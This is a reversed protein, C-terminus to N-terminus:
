PQPFTSPLDAASKLPRGPQRQWYGPSGPKFYTKTRGASNYAAFAGIQPDFIRLTGDTDDLKMPLNEARARQLFLWAQAAYDAPSKSNFDRGHRDFHDQLSNVNGWTQVTPPVKPAATAAAKKDPTLANILRGVIGPQPTATAAPAPADDLTTFTGTALRARASGLSYHYTTGPNLGELRVQHDSSVAGEAKQTLQAANPGYQLRTGCEVDTKWTVIAGTAAPTIKPQGVLEVAHALSGGFMAVALGLIILAHKSM